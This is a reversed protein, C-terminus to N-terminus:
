DGKVKEFRFGMANCSFIYERGDSFIVKISDEGYGTWSNITGIYAAFHKKFNRYVEEHTM